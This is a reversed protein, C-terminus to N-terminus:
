PSEVHSADVPASHSKLKEINKGIIEHTQLKVLWGASLDALM